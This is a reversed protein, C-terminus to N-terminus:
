SRSRRRAVGVGIWAAALVALALGGPGAGGPTSCGCMSTSTPPSAAPPKDSPPHLEGDCDWPGTGRFGCAELVGGNPRRATIAVHDGDVSVELFHYAAEFHRTEKINFKKEYLPAGAGGTVVYKLGQGEGREYVHDHGAIVLDVKRDRMIGIVEGSALAPNDGHPGASFPGWHMVAFRHALGPEQLARDLENRLWAREDGTWQDMANLVFFRTNGWRFSWYLERRDHGADDEGAFYKLFAVEGSRDGGALEHNGVAVFLCRDRLLPEELAFLQRWESPDTGKAVMDGSNILFDGPAALMGKVILAHAAEDSRSDGYALFRFPRADVPATTFHGSETTGGATVKYAYRTAPQLGDVRISHFTKPEASERKVATVGGDGGASGDPTVELTAPSADTLELKVTVASPGLGQLYPGKAFPAAAADGAPSLLALAAACAVDFRRFAHLHVRRVM